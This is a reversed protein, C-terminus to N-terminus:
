FCRPLRIPRRDGLSVYLVDNQVQVRTMFQPSNRLRRMWADARSQGVHSCSTMVHSMILFLKLM